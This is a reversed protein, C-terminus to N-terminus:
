GRRRRIEVGFQAYDGKVPPQPKRVRVLVEEVPYAALIRSAVAQALSELLAYKDEEVTKRVLEYVRAYDVTLGLDDERGAAALDLYLEVDVLFVQGRRKEQPLLGHFAYFRLGELLIKDMPM